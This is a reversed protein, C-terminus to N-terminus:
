DLHYKREEVITTIQGHGPFVSTEQPLALIKKISTALDGPSAYQFDTRGVSGEAFLTDGTLAVHHEPSYLVVSGPTHGPTEIIELLNEGVTITDSTEYTKSITPPVEVVNYHLFYRATEQMRKLLFADKAHIYFPIKYVQQLEFAALIHDFHGHTAAIGIANLGMDRMVQSIYDADDGPDVILAEKSSIDVILYCNTHLQGVVLEKVQLLSKV